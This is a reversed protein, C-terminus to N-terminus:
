RLLESEQVLLGTLKGPDNPPAQVTDILVVLEDKVFVGASHIGGKERARRVQMYAGDVGPVSAPASWGQSEYARETGEAFDDAFQTLGFQFIRVTVITGDADAWRRVVGREFVDRALIPRFTAADAFTKGAADLDPLKEDIPKNAWAHSGTPAAIVYQSLDGTHAQIPPETPNASIPEATPEDSGTARAQVDHNRVALFGATAIGFCGLVLVVLVSALIWVTRNPRRPPTPYPGWGVAPPWPVVPGPAPHGGPLPPSVSPEGDPFTSSM